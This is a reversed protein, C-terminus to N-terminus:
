CRRGAARPWARRASSGGPRRSPLASSSSCAWPRPAGPVCRRGRASVCQGVLAAESRAPSRVKVPHGICQGCSGRPMCRNRSRGIGTGPNCCSTAACRRASYSKSGRRRLSPVERLPHCGVASARSVMYKKLCGTAATAVSKVQKQPKSPRGIQPQNGRTAVVPSWLPEM